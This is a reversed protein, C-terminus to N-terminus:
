RAGYRGLREIAHDVFSHDIVQTPEVRTKSFGQEYWWEM